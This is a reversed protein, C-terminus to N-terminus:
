HATVGVRGGAIAVVAIAAHVVYAAVAVIPTSRRIGRVIAIVEVEIAATDIWRVVVITRETARNTTDLFLYASSTEARQNIQKMQNMELHNLVM